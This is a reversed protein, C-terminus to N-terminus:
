IDPPGQPPGDEKIAAQIMRIAEICDVDSISDSGKNARIHEFIEEASMHWPLNTNWNTEIAFGIGITFFKQFGVVAQGDAVRVRYRWYDEDIPPTFMIMIRNTPAVIISDDTQSRRELVLDSM